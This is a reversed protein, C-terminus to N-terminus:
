LGLQEPPLSWSSQPKLTFLEQSGIKSFFGIV